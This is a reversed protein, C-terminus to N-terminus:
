PTGRLISGPDRQLQDVLQRLARLTDQLEGLTRQASSMLAGGAPVLHDANDVLGRTREALQGTSQTATTLSHMLETAGPEAARVIRRLDTIAGDLNASADRLSEAAQRAAGVTAKVDSSSILQNASDLTRQTSAFLGELDLRSVRELVGLAQKQAGEFDSPATPIEPYPVTDDGVLEAVTGPMLDLTVHREGTILTATTLRARLGREHIADDIVARDNFDITVGHATFRKPELEIVVPMRVDGPKRPKSSLNFYIARVSGVVLGRVKVPAGPELGDVSGPFYAVFLVSSRFLRGSGLVVVAAVGLALVGVIFGGVIAPSGRKM